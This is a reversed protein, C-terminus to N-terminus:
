LIDAVHYVHIGARKLLEIGTTDKYPVIYYVEKFGSNIIMAACTVCPSMSCFMVKEQDQATCKAIANAEAHVCTYKGYHCLCQEGGRPGGNVGIAYVQYGHKEIIIAATKKDTCHSLPMLTAVLNAFIAVKNANLESVYEEDIM